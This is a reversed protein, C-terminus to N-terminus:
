KEKDIQLVLEPLSQWLKNRTDKSYEIAKKGSATISFYLKPRGGRSKTAEGHESQLLGKAELRRLTTQLAGVSVERDM